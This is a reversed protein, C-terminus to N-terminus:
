LHGSRQYSYYVLVICYLPDIVKFRDSKVTKSAAHTAQKPLQSHSPIGGVRCEIVDDDSGTCVEQRLKELKPLLLFSIM